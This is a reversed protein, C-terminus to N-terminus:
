EFWIKNLCIGLSRMDPSGTVKNPIWTDSEIEVKIKTPKSKNIKVPIVIDGLVQRGSYSGIKRKGSKITIKFPTNDTNEDSYMGIRLTKIEPNYIIDEFVAYGSTWRAVREDPWIEYRYFGNDVTCRTDNWFDVIKKVDGRDPNQKIFTYKRISENRRESWNDHLLNCDIEEATEIGIPSEHIDNEYHVKDTRFLNYHYDPDYQSQFVGDLFTKRNLIYGDKDWSLTNLVDPNSLTEDSDIMLIYECKCMNILTNRLQSHSGMYEMQKVVANYKKCVKITNDTSYSDLVYIEDVYSHLQSLLKELGDACNLSLVGLGLKM